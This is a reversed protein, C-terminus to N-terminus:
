NRYFNGTRISVL